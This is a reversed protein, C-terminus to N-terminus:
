DLQSSCAQHAARGEQGAPKHFCRLTAAFFPMDLKGWENSPQDLEFHNGRILMLNCM